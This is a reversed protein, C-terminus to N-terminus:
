LWFDTKDRLHCLLNTKLYQIMFSLLKVLDYRKNNKLLPLRFQKSIM